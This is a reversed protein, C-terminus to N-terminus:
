YHGKGNIEKMYANVVINRDFEREMKRRGYAGLNKREGCSLTLFKEIKEIVDGSDKERILFGNRGDEVVERCGARDTTIVPRGSACAELLVNSIGEPYYTPHVVCHIDKLFGSVDRVMGHFIVTGQNAMEQLRGRYEEECFGCVHFETFPYKERIQEAAELYQDIGKEKMIRSIFAFRITRGEPYPLLPFRELNVGSGPLLKQKQVAIGNEKFFNQNETNQFFVTQVDTFAYRYLYTLVRQKWGGGELATGLGTINAIFPIHSKKAAIAGYINPKITFGLIADPQVEAALKKYSDLLRIEKLPNIGHRELGSEHFIIGLRLLDKIREGYPASIHVAYGKQLMAEILELRFNYLGIDNNALILIRM